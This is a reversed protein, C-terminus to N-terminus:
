KLFSALDKSFKGDKVAQALADNILQKIVKEKADLVDNVVEKVDGRVANALDNAFHVDKVQCDLDLVEPAATITTGKHTVLIQVRATLRGTATFNSSAKAVNKIRGSARGKLPAVVSLEFVLRDPKRLLQISPLTLNLDTKPSKFEAHAEFEGTVSLIGKKFRETQEESFTKGDLAQAVRGEILGALANRFDAPLERDGLGSSATRYCLYIYPTDSGCGKNLDIPIKVYPAPPTISPKDGMIVKLGDIPVGKAKKYCLYIFKGEAGKNLDVPIKTFGAPTPVEAKDGFVVTLDTIPTGSGHQCVLYIFKGNAGKNLDGTIKEWGKKTINADEGVIVDLNTISDARLTPLWSLVVLVCLLSRPM